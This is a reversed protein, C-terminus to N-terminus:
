FQDFAVTFRCFKRCWGRWSAGFHLFITKDEALAKAKAQALVKDASPAEAYALTKASSAPMPRKIELNKDYPGYPWPQLLEQDAAQALAVVSALLVVSIWPRCTQM